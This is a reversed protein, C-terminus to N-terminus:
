TARWRGEGAAAPALHPAAHPRHTVALADLHHTGVASTPVRPGRPMHVELKGARAFLNHREICTQTTHRPRTGSSTSPAVCRAVTRYRSKQCRSVSSGRLRVARARPACTAWSVVSTDAGRSDGMEFPLQTHHRPFRLSKTHYSKLFSPMHNSCFDYWTIGCDRYRAGRSIDRDRYRAAASLHCIDGLGFLSIM